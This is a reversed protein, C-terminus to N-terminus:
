KQPCLSECPIGDKDRDIRQLHCHNLYFKAEQCSRMQKCFQKQNCLFHPTNEVALPAIGASEIKPKIQPNQLSTSLTKWINFAIMLLILFVIKKM